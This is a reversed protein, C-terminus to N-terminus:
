KLRYLGWCIKSQGPAHDHRKPRFTQLFIPHLVSASGTQNFLSGLCTDVQKRMPVGLPEAETRAITVAIHQPTPTRKRCDTPVAAPSLQSGSMYLVPQFTAQFESQRGYHKLQHNSTVSGRMDVRFGSAFVLLLRLGANASCSVEEFISKEFILRNVKLICAVPM